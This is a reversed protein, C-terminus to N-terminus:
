NCLSATVTVAYLVICVTWCTEFSIYIKGMIFICFLSKTAVYPYVKCFLWKFSSRHIGSSRVTLELSLSRLMLHNDPMVQCYNYLWDLACSSSAAEDFGDDLRLRRQCSSAAARCSPSPLELVVLQSRPLNLSIVSKIDYIALVTPM